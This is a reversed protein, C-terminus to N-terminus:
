LQQMGSYTRSVINYKVSTRYGNGEYVIQWGDDSERWQQEKWGSWRYNNSKYDQYYRVTVLEPNKLDAFLSVKSASVEIWRKSNNVRGKYESWQAKNRNFDSFDDAYFGLYSKNDKAEWAQRWAEFTELLSEGRRANERAPVWSIPQDSLVMHTLGTTIYDHMAKLSDNDIVVCGDSDWLPRTDVKKPLGHLWIGSGTWGHQRDLVNPYNLPFAGLGYEDDLMNDSLFSTLRYVGVPTKQDGELIKGYGNKGISVPIEQDLRLGGDPQRSQVSLRGKDLEVWLLFQEGEALKLAAAPVMAEEQIASSAPESSIQGARDDASYFKLSPGSGAQAQSQAPLVLWAM